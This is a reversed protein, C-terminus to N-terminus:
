REMKVVVTPAKVKTAAANFTAVDSTLAARAQALLKEAVPKLDTYREMAPTGLRREPNAIANYLVILQNDLRGPYNLSDQGGEGQIQTLESEAATLKDKLTTGAAQLNRRTKTIEDIQGRADRIALVYTYLQNVMGGVENALRFQEAGEAETMKPMERPDTALWFDQTQSWDGSSVKVRYTGPPMKPGPGGGAGWMVTGPPVTFLAPFRMQTWTARNVGAVASATIPAPGAGGGPGGRGGGGGRQGGAPQAAPPAAPPAGRGAAATM